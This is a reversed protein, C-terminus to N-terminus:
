HVTINGSSSSLDMDVTGSVQLTKEFHGTTAANLPLAALAALTFVLALVRLSKM